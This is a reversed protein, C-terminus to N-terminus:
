AQRNKLRSSESCVSIVAPTSLAAKSDIADAPYCNQTKVGHKSSCM